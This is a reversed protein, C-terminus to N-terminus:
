KRKFVDVHSMNMPEGGRKVIKITVSQKAYNYSIISILTTVLNRQQM